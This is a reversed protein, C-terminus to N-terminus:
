RDSQVWAQFMLVSWLRHAHDAGGTVHDHWMQTILKTDLYGERRLRQPELLAGAWERLPGRLWQALPVGFGQKPRDLLADPVYRALVGRLVQKGGSPTLNLEIPLRWAFEIIRPDLFPVRTELSAAMAARDVKTLIDDPLYAVADLLMMTQTVGIGPPLSVPPLGAGNSCDSVLTDYMDLASKADLVGALKHISAGPHSISPMRQSRRVLADWTTPSVQMMALAAARRLPRPVHRLARWLKAVWVYRNYGVFLEDGADGSLAVTVHQRTLRSLLVTAIQSSDAFPEDYIQPLDPVVRLADAATVYMETHQTGLHMAVARAAPAEDFERDQFGISFTRVPRSSRSQMLAVITSSDVGGSLFAGLPVDAAMQLQVADGLLEDLETVADKFTGRFPDAVAEGFVSSASWYEETSIGMGAAGGITLVTGPRLKYANEYISRPAPVYRFRLFQDLARRDVSGQWRPHLRLAKLQSGFVFTEGAWGYYLPKEGIRDRALSLTRERTDWLAIAFMGRSRSLASKVGWKSIAALLVETDSHGRWTPGDDGGLTERLERYNYIEGNFAIVYRGCPSTMPQHGDRSLDVIALRRFGIAIGQEPDHWEGKDDPGRHILSERMRRLDTIGADCTTARPTLFGTFGCM